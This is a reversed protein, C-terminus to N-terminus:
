YTMISSRRLANKTQFLQSPRILQARTMIMRQILFIIQWVENMDSLLNNRSITLFFRHKNKILHYLSKNYRSNKFRRFIFCNNLIFKEKIETNRHSFKKVFEDDYKGLKLFKRHKMYFLCNERNWEMKRILLENIAQECIEENKQKFKLKEEKFANDVLFCNAQNINSISHSLFHERKKNQDSTKQTEEEM